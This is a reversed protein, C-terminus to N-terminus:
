VPVNTPMGCCQEAGCVECLWLITFGPNDAFPQEIFIKDLEGVYYCKDLVLKKNRSVCLCPTACPCQMYYTSHGSKAEWASLLAECAELNRAVFKEHSIIMAMKYPLFLQSPKVQRAYTLVAKVRTDCGEQTVYHLFLYIKRNRINKQKKLICGRLYLFFSNM